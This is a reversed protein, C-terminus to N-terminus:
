LGQGRVECECSSPYPVRQGQFEKSTSNYVLLNIHTIKQECITEFDNQLEELRCKAEKSCTSIELVPRPYNKTSMVYMRENNDGIISLPVIKINQETECLRCSQFPEPEEIVRTQPLPRGFASILKTGLSEYVTHIEHTPYTSDKYCISGIREECGEDALILGLVGYFCIVAVFIKM